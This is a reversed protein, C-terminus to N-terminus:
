SVTGTSNDTALWPQDAGDAVTMVETQSQATSIYPTTMLTLHPSASTMDAVYMGDSGDVLLVSRAGAHAWWFSSVTSTPGASNGLLHWTVGYNTSYFVGAGEITAAVEGPYGSTTLSLPFAADSLGNAPDDRAVTVQTWTGGWDVTRYLDGVNTGALYFVGPTGDAAVM